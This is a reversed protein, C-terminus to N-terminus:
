GREGIVPAPAPPPPAPPPPPAEAVPQPPPAPEPQACGALLAAPVVVAVMMTNRLLRWRVSKEAVDSM